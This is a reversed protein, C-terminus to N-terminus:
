QKKSFLIEYWPRGDYMPTTEKASETPLTTQSQIYDADQQALMDGNAQTLKQTGATEAAPTAANEVKAVSETAAAGGDTFGQAGMMLSSGLLSAANSMTNEGAAQEQAYMASKQANLDADMAQKQRDVERKIASGQAALNAITDGVVEAGAQEAQTVQEATAGTIAQRARTQKSHEERAEKARRLANQADTSNLYDGFYNRAYWAENAARQERQLRKQEEKAKKANKWGSFLGAGSALAGVGAITLTIPDM